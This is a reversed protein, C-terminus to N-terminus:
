IHPSSSQVKNVDKVLLSKSSRQALQPTESALSFGGNYSNSQKDDESAYGKDQADEFLPTYPSVIRVYGGLLNDSMSSQRAMDEAPSFCSRRYFAEQYSISDGNSAGLKYMM